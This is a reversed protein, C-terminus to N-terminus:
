PSVAKREMDQGVRPVGGCGKQFLGLHLRQAMGMGVQGQMVTAPGLIGIVFRAVDTVPDDGLADGVLRDQDEIGVADHPGRRDQAHGVQHRRLRTKAKHLRRRAHQRPFGKPLAQM